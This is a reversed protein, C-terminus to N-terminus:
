PDNGVGVGVATSNFGGTGNGLLVSVNDSGINATALDLRGDGNFDGTTISFPSTGSILFNSAASFGGTGNSLLVSVNNSINNATALDLRGDGNFDGTTISIPLSGVGFSTAAGFGGTGDGLLVSVTNENSNATALDLKGDGNFDGTTVARPGNGVGFNTAASFSGTGNGLLVSVTNSSNNATALDLILDGNFDGTTVSRPNNGVSFSTAAFNLVDCSQEQPELKDQDLDSSEAFDDLSSKIQENNFPNSDASLGGFQKNAQLYNAAERAVSLRSLLTKNEQTHLVDESHASSSIAGFNISISLCFFLALAFVTSNKRCDISSIINKM